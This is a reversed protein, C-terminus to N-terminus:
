LLEQEIADEEITAGDSAFGDVQPIVNFAIQKPYQKQTGAPPENVFIGRTQTFLEDMADRGLSSASYLSTVVARKVSFANHLPGIIRALAITAAGPSALIRKKSFGVISDRNLIPVILPVGPELRSAPSADIVVAGAKVATAAARKSVESGAAFVAIDIGEFTYGDLTRIAVDDDEGYSVTGGMSKGSALAVVDAVPVGRDALVTLVERGFNGTAGIVAIKVSM